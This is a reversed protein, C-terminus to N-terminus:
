ISYVLVYNHRINSVNPRTNSVHPWAFRHSKTIGGASVLAFGRIKLTEPGLEVEQSMHDRSILSWFLVGAEGSFLSFVNGILFKKNKLTGFIHFQLEYTQSWTDSRFLSQVLLESRWHCCSSCGTNSPPSQNWSSHQGSHSLSRWSPSWTRHFEPGVSTGRTCSPQWRRRWPFFIDGSSWPKNQILNWGKSM